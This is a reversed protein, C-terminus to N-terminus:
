GHCIGREKEGESINEAELLSKLLKRAKFLRSKVTGEMTGTVRAIEKTSLENIWEAKIQDEEHDLIGEFSLESRSKKRKEARWATRVLIQYLWPEFREPERLKDRHLFCKVFTEQLIDESDSRNGTIFYAMRYLKGSCSRYLEDFAAESGGLMREVLAKKEENM